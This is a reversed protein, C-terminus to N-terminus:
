GHAAPETGERQRDDAEGPHDTVLGAESLAQGPGEVVEDQTPPGDPAAGPDRGERRARKAAAKDTRAREKQRKAATFGTRKAM